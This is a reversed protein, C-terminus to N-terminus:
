AMFSSLLPLSLAFNGIYGFRKGTRTAISITIVKGYEAFRNKILATNLKIKKTNAM